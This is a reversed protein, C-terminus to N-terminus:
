IKLKEYKTISNYCYNDYQRTIMKVRIHGGVCVYIQLLEDFTDAISLKFLSRSWAKNNIKQSM